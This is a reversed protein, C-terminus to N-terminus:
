VRKDAVSCGSPVVCRARVVAGLAGHDREFVQRYLFLLAALDQNQTSSSVHESVALHSLFVNIEASDM